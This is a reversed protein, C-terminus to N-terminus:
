EPQGRKATWPADVMPFIVLALFVSIAVLRVVTRVRWLLYLSIACAAVILLIRVVGALSPSAIRFTTAGAVEPPDRNSASPSSGEGPAADQTSM